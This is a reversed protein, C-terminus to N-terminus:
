STRGTSCATWAAQRVIEAVSVATVGFEDLVRGAPGRTLLGLLMNATGVSGAGVGSGYAAAGVASGYAAALVNRVGASPEATAHM